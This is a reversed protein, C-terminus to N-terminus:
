NIEFKAIYNPVLTYPTKHVWRDFNSLALGAIHKSSADAGQTEIFKNCNIQFVQYDNLKNKLDNWSMIEPPTDPSKNSNFQQHYILDRHSFLLVHFPNDVNCGQAIGELTPVPIIPLHGSYALGKAYSLGIRLGTFSGPGISVAIGDLESLKFPQRNMLEYYFKPLMSAHKRPINEEITTVIKDDMMLSISCVNTATEVALIKM